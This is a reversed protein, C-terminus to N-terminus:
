IKGVKKGTILDEAGIVKVPGFFKTFQDIVEAVNPMEQRNREAQKQRKDPTM